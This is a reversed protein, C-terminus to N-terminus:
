RCMSGCTSLRRRHVAIHREFTHDHWSMRTTRRAREGSAKVEEQEQRLTMGEPALRQKSWAMPRNGGDGDNCYIASDSNDGVHEEFHKCLAAKFM